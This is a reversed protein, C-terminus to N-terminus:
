FVPNILRKYRFFTYVALFLYSVLFNILSIVIAYFFLGFLIGTYSNVRHVNSSIEYGFSLAIFNVAFLFLALIGLGSLMSKLDSPSLEMHSAIALSLYIFIWFSINSFNGPHFISTIIEKGANAIYEWQHSLNMINGFHLDSSSIVTTISEPNPLLFFMVAYLVGAGFIVPGAGIFLNGIRQYLNNRNYSHHVYGLSGDVPDFNFLRIKDIRHLFILCFFAHGLEHVPTGLWGTLIIDLKYNRSKAFSNRTFRALFYMVLGAAFFVGFVGVLQFFTSIGVVKLFEFAQKFGAM